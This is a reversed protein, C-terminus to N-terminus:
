LEPLIGCTEEMKAIWQEDRVDRVLYYTEVVNLGAVLRVGDHYTWRQRVRDVTSEAHSQSWCVLYQLPHTAPPVVSWGSWEPRELTTVKMGLLRLASFTEWFDQPLDMFSTHSKSLEVLALSEIQPAYRRLFGDLVATFQPATNFHGLHVHRLSPTDWTQMPLTLFASLTNHLYLLELHPLAITQEPTPNVNILFLSCLGIFTSSLQPFSLFLSSGFATTISLSQLTTNTYEPNTGVLSDFLNYRRVPTKFLRLTYARLPSQSAPRKLIHSTWALIPDVLEESIITTSLREVARVGGAGPTTTELDYMPSGEEDLQLWRHSTILFFENWARCVLRLRKHRELYDLYPKRQKHARTQQNIFYLFTYPTCSTAFIPAEDMDIVKLLIQQWIEVPVREM